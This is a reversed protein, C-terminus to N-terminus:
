KINLKRKLDNIFEDRTRYGNAELKLDYHLFGLLIELFFAQPIPCGGNDQNRESFDKLWKRLEKDYLNFSTTRISETYNEIPVDERQVHRAKHGNPLREYTTANSVGSQETPQQYTKIIPQHITEVENAEDTLREQEQLQIVPVDVDPLDDFKIEHTKSPRVVGQTSESDKVGRNVEDLMSIRRRAM